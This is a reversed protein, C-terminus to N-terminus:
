LDCSILCLRLAACAVNTGSCPTLHCKLLKPCQFTKIILFCTSYRRAAPPTTHVQAWSSGPAATATRMDSLSSNPPFPPHPLPLKLYLLPPAPPSSHSRCAMLTGVTDNALAAVNVKVNKNGLAQMARSSFTAPSNLALCLVSCRSYCCCLTRVKSM